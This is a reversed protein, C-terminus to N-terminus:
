GLLHKLVFERQKPIEHSYDMFAETDSLFESFIRHMVYAENSYRSIKTEFKRTKSGKLNLFSSILKEINFHKLSM